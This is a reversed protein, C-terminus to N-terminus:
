FKMETEMKEKRAKIETKMEATLAMLVKLQDEMYAAKSRTEVTM